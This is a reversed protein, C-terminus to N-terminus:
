FIAEPVMVVDGPLLQIDTQDLRGKLLDNVNIRITNEKGEGGARLIRVRKPDSIDTFGGATAVLGLLTLPQEPPQTYTGPRKIEGLITVRRGTSHEVRVSVRPNVLYRAGLLDLFQREVQAVTRGAVPVSELLPHRVNGEASVPFVGSIDPEGYVDVRLSDLPQVCYDSGGGVLAVPVAAPVAAPLRPAPGPSEVAPVPSPAAAAVPEPPVVAVDPAAAPEDLVIPSLDCV